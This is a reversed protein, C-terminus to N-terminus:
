RGYTLLAVTEIHYTQPFMDIPQAEVLQYGGESLRRVDRALTAPDCSVYGSRPPNLNVLAEVVESAVGKRPPDLVVLDARDPLVPLVLEVPGEYFTLNGFPEANVEADDLAISSEEIGIVQGVHEALSIGFTGVGCYLDLLTEYGRPDLYHRVVEIMQEAMVTNVQFFSGASIRFRRGRLKEEIYTKGALSMSTGDSLQLVCSGPIDIHVAPAEDAETELIVMRDQTYIGARLAVTKLAPFDLELQEYLDQLLPHLIYCVEIPVVSHDDVGVFGLKGDPRVHFQAHNRYFWPEDMGLTAQVVPNELGGLRQLQNEVIARKYALQAPYSVHQWQCGGCYREGWTPDTRDWRALPDGFHPCRPAAIRDPAPTLVEVVYGRAFRKQDETIRVRVEEGPLGGDVFIVKGEHRGIAAGGHAMDM